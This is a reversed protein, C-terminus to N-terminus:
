CYDRKALSSINPARSSSLNGIHILYLAVSACVVFMSMEPFESTCDRICFFIDLKIECFLSYLLSSFRLVHFFM